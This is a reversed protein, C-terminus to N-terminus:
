IQRLFELMAENVEQPREQQTWHGCGPLILIRQLKPVSQSLSAIVYDMGRFAPVVDRDGVILLAPVTIKLGAFPAMLEWNRDINRYWNLGGRYGTRKFQDVCFEVDAETLWSPLSTPNVWNAMMGGKRPVMFVHGAQESRIASHPADGSGDYLLARMTFRVDRELDAEAVGPSQFYSQYFVADDTQPYSKSPYDPGRPIFPVSLGIVARFRDPRLLAAHWAVLAGWDHGAIVATESDLADLLGVMDGVLHLLTYQDIPEPRDTNGYGRMDPAVARFGAAALASLQHRWSYWSEPFGHCLLVLPGEGQEVLHIRIGNTEVFRHTPGSPYRYHEKAIM